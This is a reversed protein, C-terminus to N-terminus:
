EVEQLEPKPEANLSRCGDATIAVINEIRVGFKGPLYIGPEVSFTHGEQLLTTNGEVMYPPEHGALGIGHGVRHCFFEGYGAADIVRRAARDVEQCAVGPKAAERGAYFADRVIRYVKKAEESAPGCCATRTIDAQYGKYTAGYDMIVVDGRQIKREGTEHHPKAGNPGAGVIGVGAPAGQAHCAQQIAIGVQRETAGERLVALGAPYATDAIKGAAELLAVEEATKRGRCAEMIPEASKFLAAPLAEQMRILYAAPMFEDVAVVASRLGWREALVGFAKGPDEGDSWTNVATLGTLETAQTHSLAPTLMEVPRDPAVGVLMMREGGGERFGVVYDMASPTAAFYADVGADALAKQLREIRQKHVETM